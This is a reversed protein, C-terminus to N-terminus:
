FAVKFDTFQGSFPLWKLNVNKVVASRPGVKLEEIFAEIEGRDGEVVITVTGDPNNKVWGTLGLSRARDFCFYRYGVGQVFGEIHLEAGVTNM